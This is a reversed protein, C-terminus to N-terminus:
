QLGGFRLLDSLISSAMTNIRWDEGVETPEMNEFAAIEHLAVLKVRVGQMTNAELGALRETADDMEQLRAEWATEAATVGMAEELRDGEARWEKLAALIALRRRNAAEGGTVRRYLSWDELEKRDWPTYFTGDSDPNAPRPLDFAQVDDDHFRCVEPLAPRAAAHQAMLGDLFASDRRCLATAARIAALAELLQAEGDPAMALAPVTSVTAVAASAALMARRNLSITM